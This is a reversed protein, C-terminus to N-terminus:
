LWKELWEYAQARMTANFEHPCEYISLGLREPVGLLAYAQKAAEYTAEVGDKPFIADATGALILSFTLDESRVM